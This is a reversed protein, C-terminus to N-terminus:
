TSELQHTANVRVVIERKEIEWEGNEIGWEEKKM